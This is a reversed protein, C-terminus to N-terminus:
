KVLLLTIPTLGGQTVSVLKCTANLPCENGTGTFSAGINFTPASYSGITMGSCNINAATVFDYGKARKIALIQETCEQMLQVGVQIDKNSSQGYLINSQLSIIATAAISLVVLM